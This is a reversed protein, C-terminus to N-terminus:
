FHDNKLFEVSNGWPKLQEVSLQELVIVKNGTVQANITPSSCEEALLYKSWPSHVNPIEIMKKTKLSSSPLMVVAENPGQVQM